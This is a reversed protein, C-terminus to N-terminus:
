GGVKYEVADVIENKTGSIFVQDLNKLFKILRGKNEEDLESMVDDLIVVPKKDKDEILFYPSLKLALAVLRNEGQSGYISIDEGKYKVMFDERHIGVNTSKSKYDKEKSNKYAELANKKRDGTLSIFPLYCIELSHNEGTLSSAIETFVKNISDIYNKRYECISIQLDVMLTTISDLLTEDIKDSKLLANRERLLKNYQSLDELYVPYAKSISIDLFSRRARPTGRFIDVDEPTFLLINVMKSLESIRGIPKKNVLIQRGDESIRIQISKKIQGEKIEANILAEEKGKKILEYSDVSRFSRALSLYYIAELINTKGVGNVGSFVNIQPSFKYDLYAHNRFNRLQLSEIIM